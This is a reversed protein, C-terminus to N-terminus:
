PTALEGKDYAKRMNEGKEPAVDILASKSGFGTLRSQYYFYRTSNPELYVKASIGRTPDVWPSFQFSIVHKGPAVKIEAYQQTRLYAVENGDIKATGSFAAPPGWGRIFVIKAANSGPKALPVMVEKERPVLGVGCGSLGMVM